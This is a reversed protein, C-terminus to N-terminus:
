NYAYILQTLARSNMEVEEGCHFPRNNNSNSVLSASTNKCRLEIRVTCLTIRVKNLLFTMMSVYAHM